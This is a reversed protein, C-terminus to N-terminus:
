SHKEKLDAETMKKLHAFVETQFNEIQKRIRQAAEAREGATKDRLSLIAANLYTAGAFFTMKEEMLEAADLDNYDQGYSNQMYDTFARQIDCSEILERKM